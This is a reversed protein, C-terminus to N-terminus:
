PSISWCAASRQTCRLMACNPPSGRLTVIAPWDAPPTDTSACRTDGPERPSNWRAITLAAREGQVLLREGVGLRGALREGCLRTARVLGRRTQAAHGTSSRTSAERRRADRADDVALHERLRDAGGEGGAAEGPDRDEVPDVVFSSSM